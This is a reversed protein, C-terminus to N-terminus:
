VADRAAEDRAVDFVRDVEEVGAEAQRREAGGEATLERGVLGAGRRQQVDAVQPADGWGLDHHHAVAGRIVDDAAVAGAGDCAQQVLPGAEGEVVERLLLQGRVIDVAEEVEGREQLGVVQLGKTSTQWRLALISIKANKMGWKHM